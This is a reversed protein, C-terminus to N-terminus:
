QISITINDEINRAYFFDELVIDFGSIFTSYQLLM